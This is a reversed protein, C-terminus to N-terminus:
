VYMYRTANEYNKKNTIELTHQVRTSKPHALVVRSVLGKDSWLRDRTITAACHPAVVDEYWAICIPLM